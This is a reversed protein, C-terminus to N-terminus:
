TTSVYFGGEGIGLAKRLQKFLFFLCGFALLVLRLNFFFFFPVLYRSTIERHKQKGMLSIEFESFM